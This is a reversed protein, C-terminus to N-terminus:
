KVTSGPHAQQPSRVKNDAGFGWNVYLKKNHAASKIM